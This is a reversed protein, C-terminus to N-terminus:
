TGEERDGVARITEDSFQGAHPAGAGLAIDARQSYQPDASVTVAHGDHKPGINPPM